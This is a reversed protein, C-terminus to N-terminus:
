STRSEVEDLMPGYRYSTMLEQMFAHLLGPSEYHSMGTGLENCDETEADTPHIARAVETDVLGWHPLKVDTPLPSPKKLYEQMATLEEVIAPLQVPNDVLFFLFFL